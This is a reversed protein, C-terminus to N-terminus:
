VPDACTVHSWLSKMQGISTTVMAELLYKNGPILGSLWQQTKAGDPSTAPAGQLRSAPSPDTGAAVKCTWIASQITEGTALLLTFNFEYIEDEGTDSPDFDNGVYM